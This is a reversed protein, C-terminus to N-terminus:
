GKTPSYEPYRFYMAPNGHKTFKEGSAWAGEEGEGTSSRVSAHAAIMVEAGPDADLADLPISHTYETTGPKHTAKYPFEGIKPNGPGAQPIKDLSSAVALQTEALTWGDTTIYRVRLTGVDNVVCVKGISIAQPTVLEVCMEDDIPSGSRTAQLFIDPLHTSVSPDNQFCAGLVSLIVLVFLAPSKANRKM